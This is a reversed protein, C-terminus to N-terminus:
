KIKRREMGKRAAKAESIFRFFHLVINSVYFCIGGNVKYVLWLKRESKQFIGDCRSNDSREVGRIERIVVSGLMFCNM